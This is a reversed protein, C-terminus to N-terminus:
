MPTAAGTPQNNSAITKITTTTTTCAPTMTITCRCLYDNTFPFSFLILPFSLVYRLEITEVRLGRRWGDVDQWGGKSRTGTTLPATTRQLLWYFSFCTFFFMGSAQSADADWAETMTSRRMRTTMGRTTVWEGHKDHNHHNLLPPPPPYHDFHHRHSTATGTIHRDGLRARRRWGVQQPPSSQTTPTHSHPNSLFLFSTRTALHPLATCIFVFVYVFCTFACLFIHTVM